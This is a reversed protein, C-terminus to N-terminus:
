GRAERDGEPSEQSSLGAQSARTQGSRVGCGVVRGSAPWDRGSLAGWVLEGQGGREGM